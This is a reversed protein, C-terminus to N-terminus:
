VFINLILYLFLGLSLLSIVCLMRFVYRLLKEREALRQENQAKQLKDDNNENDM